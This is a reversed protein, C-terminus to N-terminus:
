PVVIPFHRFAIGALVSVGLLLLWASALWYAAKNLIM